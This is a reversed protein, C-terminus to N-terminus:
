NGTKTLMKRIEENSFGRNLLNFVEERGEERGEERAEESRIAVIEEVTFDDTLMNIVESGHKKLFKKLVDNELCYKIANKVSEDLSLDNSLGNCIGYLKRTPAFVLYLSLTKERRKLSVLRKRSSYQAKSFTVRGASTGIVILM